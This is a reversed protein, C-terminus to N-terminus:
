WLIGLICISCMSKKSSTNRHVLGGKKKLRLDVSEFPFCQLDWGYYNRQVIFVLMKKLLALAIRKGNFESYSHHTSDFLSSHLTHTTLAAGPFNGWHLLLAPIPGALTANVSLSINFFLQKSWPSQSIVIYRLSKNLYSQHVFSKPFRRSHLLSFLNEDSHTVQLIVTNNLWHGDSWDQWQCFYIPFHIQFAHPRAVRGLGVTITGVHFEIQWILNPLFYIM